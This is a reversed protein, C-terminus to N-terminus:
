LAYGWKRMSWLGLGALFSAPANVLIDAVPSAVDLRDAVSLVFGEGWVFLGGFLAAASVLVFFGALIKLPLSATPRAAIAAGPTTDM